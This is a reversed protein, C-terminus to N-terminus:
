IAEKKTIKSDGGPVGDAVVYLVDPQKEAEPLADYEARTLPKTPLAVGISGGQLTITGDPTLKDQKGGLGTQVKKWFHALGDKDLFGM